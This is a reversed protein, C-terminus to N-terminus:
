HSRFKLWLFTLGGGIAAGIGLIKWKKPKKEVIITERMTAVIVPTKKEAALVKRAAPVGGAAAWEYSGAPPSAGRAFNTPTEGGLLNKAM